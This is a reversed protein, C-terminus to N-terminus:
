IVCVNLTTSAAEQCLLKPATSRSIDFVANGYMFTHCLLWQGALSCEGDGKLGLSDRSICEFLM